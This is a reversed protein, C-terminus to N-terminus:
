NKTLYEVTVNIYRRKIGPATDNIPQSFPHGRKVWVYGDDCVIPREMDDIAIGIQRSKSNPIAESETRYWLNITWSVEGAIWNDIPGSYTLYPMDNETLVANEPYAPLFQNFFNHLAAEKTM